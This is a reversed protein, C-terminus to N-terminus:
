PTFISSPEYEDEVPERGLLVRIKEQESVWEETVEARRTEMDQFLDSHIYQSCEFPKASHIKCKGNKFFICEGRPDAPYETGTEEGRIAPAIVFVTKGKYDEFWDVALYKNFLEKESM